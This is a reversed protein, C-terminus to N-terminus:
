KDSIKLEKKKPLKQDGHWSIRINIRSLDDEQQASVKFNLLGDPEMVMNGDEDELVLKGKAIGNTLAKLLTKISDTTQMSEHRFRSNHKM